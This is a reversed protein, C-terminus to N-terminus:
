KSKVTQKSEVASQNISETFFTGEALQTLKKDASSEEDLSKQLLSVIQSDLELHKAFSRLTGYSAIEYHEVKQAASIIAADLTASKSHDKLMEDGEKLLGEMGKCKKERLPEDLLTLIAEIRSYQEKTEELHHALAEKLDPMSATKVLKPLAEIIQGEASYMDKLENIFLKYMDLKKM